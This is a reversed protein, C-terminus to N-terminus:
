KRLCKLVRPIGWLECRGDAIYLKGRALAVADRIDIGHITSIAVAGANRSGLFRRAPGVASLLTRAVSIGTARYTTGRFSVREKLCSILQADAAAGACRGALVYVVDPEDSVAVAAAPDIGQLAVAEVMRGPSPAESETDACSPITAQGLTGQRELVTGHLRTGLYTGGQFDLSAICAAGATGSARPEPTTQQDSGALQFATVAAAAALLLGFALGLLPWRARRPRRGQAPRAFPEGALEAFLQQLARDVDASAHDNTM